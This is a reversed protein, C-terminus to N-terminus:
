NADRVNMVFSEKDRLRSKWKEQTFLIYNVERDLKEELEAILPSVQAIELDGIFMFDVDSDADAEGEAFSGFIIVAM